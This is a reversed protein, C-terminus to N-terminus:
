AQGEDSGRRRLSDILESVVERSDRRGAKHLVELGGASTPFWAEGDGSAEYVGVAYKAALRHATEYGVSAKLPPFAIYIFHARITYDTMWENFKPSNDMPPFVKIMEGYWAQLAPTSHSADRYLPGERWNTQAKFWAGFAARDRLEDRAAFVALTYSM